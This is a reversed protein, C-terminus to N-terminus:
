APGSGSSVDPSGQTGPTDELREPGGRELAAVLDDAGNSFRSFRIKAGSQALITCFFGNPKELGFDVIENWRIAKRGLWSRQVIEAEDWSTDIDLVFVVFFLGGLGTLLILLRLAFLESEPEDTGVGVFFHITLFALLAALYAGGLLWELPGPRLRLSGGHRRARRKRTAGIARVAFVLFGLIALKEGLPGIPLVNRDFAVVAFLVGLGLLLETATRLM